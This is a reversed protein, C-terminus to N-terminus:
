KHGVVEEYSDEHEAEAKEVERWFPGLDNKEGASNLISVYVKGEGVTETKGDGTQYNENERALIEVQIGLKQGVQQLIPFVKIDELIKAPIKPQASVLEM